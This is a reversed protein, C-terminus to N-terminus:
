GAAQGSLLQNIQQKTNLISKNLTDLKDNIAVIKDANPGASPVGDGSAASDEVEAVKDKVASTVENPEDSIAAAGDDPPADTLPTDELAAGGDDAPPPPPADGEAAAESPPEGGITIGETLPTDYLDFETSETKAESDKSDSSKSNYAATFAQSISSIFKQILPKIIVFAKRWGEMYEFYSKKTDENEFEIRKWERSHARSLSKLSDHLKDVDNMSVESETYDAETLKDLEAQLKDMEGKVKDLSSKTLQDKDFKIREADDVTHQLKRMFEMTDDFGLATKVTVKKNPDIGKIKNRLVRVLKVCLDFFKQFIHRQKKMGENYDTMGKAEILLDSGYAREFNEMEIMLFDYDSTSEDLLLDMLDDPSEKKFKEKASEYERAIADREAASIKRQGFAVNAEKYRKEIADFEPSTAEGLPADMLDESEEVPEPEDGGAAPAPDTPTDGGIPTDLLDDEGEPTTVPIAGATADVPEDGFGSDLRTDLIDDAIAAAAGRPPIPLVDNVTNTRLDLTINLIEDLGAEPDSGLPEGGDPMPVVPQEIDDSTPADGANLSTDMLDEEPEEPAETPAPEDGLPSDMLDGEPETPTEEEAGGEPEEVPQEDEEAELLIMDDLPSITADEFIIQASEMFNMKRNIMGKIVNLM